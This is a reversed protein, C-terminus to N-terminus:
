AYCVVVSMLELRDRHNDMVTPVQESDGLVKGDTAVFTVRTDIPKGLRKALADLVTHEEEGLLYPLCAEATIRAEFELQTPLDDLRADRTLGVLHHGLISM